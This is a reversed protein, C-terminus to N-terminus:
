TISWEDTVRMAEKFHELEDAKISYQNGNPSICKYSDKKVEKAKKKSQKVMKNEYNIEKM